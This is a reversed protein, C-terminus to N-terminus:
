EKEVRVSEGFYTIKNSTFDLELCSEWNQKETRDKKLLGCKKTMQDLSWSLNFSRNEKSNWELVPQIGFAQLCYISGGKNFPVDCFHLTNGSCYIEEAAMGNKAYLRYRRGVELKWSIIQTGDPQTSYEPTFSEEANTEVYVSLTAQDINGKSDTASITILYENGSHRKEPTWEIIARNQEPTLINLKMGAPASSMVLSLAENPFDIDTVTVILKMTNGEITSLHLINGHVFNKDVLTIQPPHSSALVTVSFKKVVEHNGVPKGTGVVDTVILEVSYTKGVCSTTPQWTIDGTVTDIKMEVPANKLSFQIPDGEPDVVKWNLLTSINTSVNETVSIQSIQGIIQPPLNEIEVEKEGLLVVSHYQGAALQLVELNESLVFDQVWPQNSIGRALVSNEQLYLTHTRGASIMTVKEPVIGDSNDVNWSKSWNGLFGIRGNKTLYVLHNSGASCYAIDPIVELSTTADLAYYLTDNLSLVTTFKEGVFVQVIDVLDDFLTNPYDMDATKVRGDAMVAFIRNSSCSVSIVHTWNAIKGDILKLGYIQSTDGTVYVTGDSALGCLVTGNGALDVVDKWSSASTYNEPGLVTVTGDSKLVATFDKGAAIKVTDTESSLDLNVKSSDGWAILRGSVTPRKPILVVKTVIEGGVSYNGYFVSYLFCSYSVRIAAGNSLSSALKLRVVRNERGSYSRVVVDASEIDIESWRDSYIKVSYNSVTKNYVDEFSDTALQGGAVEIVIHESDESYVRTPVDETAGLVVMCFIQLLVFLLKHQKLIKWM